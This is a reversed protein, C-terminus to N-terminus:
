ETELYAREYSFLGQPTVSFNKINPKVLVYDVGHYLPIWVADEVIIEEAQQYLEMRREPDAEVRAEELLANVEPNDYGTHNYESEGHFLIDLFNEPDPYDAVWGLSFMQYRQENLGELFDRWPVQTIQVEVGLAEEYTAVLAETVPDAGGEGSVTFTIPPLRDAGGYSSEELLTLAQDPDYPIGTLSANYGPMGPPLIGTAPTVMKGLIINAIAKKNTAYAFAQRVKVDDFPPMTTNFAVYWVDLSAVISLESNLPDNPDLVRDINAAGVGAVDLEGREYLSLSAIGRLDYVVEDLLPRGRYFHENAALVIREDSWEVLRFPGTGNPEQTWDRGSEVNDRDVVYSTPYTLKSLFYSKPADITIRLTYDDVVEVGRVEDARRNLKDLAGVIDGLYSSAVPNDGAVDPDCSREISYKVDHATVPKGDHFRVDRRLYFTYVTRDASVDWREAIDPVVELNEDLTVLGSFIKSIYEHSRLDGAVAPDLSVPESGPLRLTGGAHAPSPFPTSIGEPTPPIGSFPTAAPTSLFGRQQAYYLTLFGGCCSLALCLVLLVIIIIVLWTNRSM